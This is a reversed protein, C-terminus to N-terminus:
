CQLLAHRAGNLPVGLSRRFTAGGGRLSHKCCIGVGPYPETDLYGPFGCGRM